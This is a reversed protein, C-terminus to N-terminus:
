IVHGKKEVIDISNLHLIYTFPLFFEKNEPGNERTLYAQPALTRDTSYEATSFQM